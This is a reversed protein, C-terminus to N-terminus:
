SSAQVVLLFGCLRLYLIYNRIQTVGRKEEKIKEIEREKIKKGLYQSKM